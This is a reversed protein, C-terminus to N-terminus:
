LWLIIVTVNVSDFNTFREYSKKFFANLQFLLIEGWTMQTTGSVIRINGTRQNLLNDAASVSIM